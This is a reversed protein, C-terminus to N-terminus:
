NFNENNEEEEELTNMQKLEELLADHFAHQSSNREMNKYVVGDKLLIVRDCFSASFSDHTVMFITAKLSAKAELFSDIVARSSKSDLNGTPEDALILLPSNILARAVATRQREGGSIEAPYKDAIEWIGFMKLLKKAKKEMKEYPADEIVQPICVNEFVTLGDLLMFDQFVFGLEQNRIEAMKEEKLQALKKGNLLVKGKEYPIFCSICNLLTTKGSGSPGMVAVFEGKEIHLSVDKLVPYTNVGNTYSKNLNKVELM